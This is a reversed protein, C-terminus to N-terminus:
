WVLQRVNSQGNYGSSNTCLSLDFGRRRKSDFKSVLSGYAGRLDKDTYVNATISFDGDGIPSSKTGDIEIYSDRGNFGSTSLDVNRSHGDNKAGSYDQCDGQLKWYGILGDDAAHSVSTTVLGIWLLVWNRQLLM